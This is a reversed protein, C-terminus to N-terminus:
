ERDQASAAWAATQDKICSSIRCIHILVEPHPRVTMTSVALPVMKWRGSGVKINVARLFIRVHIALANSSLSGTFM